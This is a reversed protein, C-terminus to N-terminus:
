DSFMDHSSSAGDDGDDDGPQPATDPSLVRQNRESGRTSVRNKAGPRPGPSGSTPNGTQSKLFRRNRHAKCGNGSGSPPTTVEKRTKTIWIGKSTSYYQRSDSPGKPHLPNSERRRLKHVPTVVGSQSNVVNECLCQRVIEFLKTFNDTTYQMSVNKTGTRILCLPHWDTGGRSMNVVGVPPM